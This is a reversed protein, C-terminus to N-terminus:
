LKAAPGNVGPILEGGVPQGNKKAFEIHRAVETSFKVMANDEPAYGIIRKANALSWFANYNGSIGYFVQPQSLERPFCSKSPSSIFLRGERRRKM